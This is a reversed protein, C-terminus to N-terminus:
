DFLEPVEIVDAADVTPRIREAVHVPQHMVEAMYRTCRQRQLAKLKDLRVALRKTTDRSGAPVVEVPGPGFVRIWDAYRPSTPKILVKM